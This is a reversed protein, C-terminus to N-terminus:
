FYELYKKKIDKFSTKSFDFTTGETNNIRNIIEMFEEEKFISLGLELCVAKIEEMARNTDEKKSVVKEAEFYNYHENKVLAFEIDKYEFVFTKTAMICAVNWNMYGLFEVMDDFKDVAIPISIERRIDNAGWSGYKMVLEAQKNTIRLRIDVPDDKLEAVDKVARRMFCLSFRDKEKIFKAKQRLEALTKDFDKLEGRVEVEIM